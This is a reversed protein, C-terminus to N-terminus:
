IEVIKTWSFDPDEEYNVYGFTNAVVHIGQEVYDSSQHTHGHIWVSINEAFPVFEELIDTAYGTHMFPQVGAYRRTAASQMSPAHHTVIVNKKNTDIQTKLWLKNNYFIRTAEAPTFKGYRGAYKQTIKKFDNMQFSLMPDAKSWLTSGIFNVGDIEVTNNDLFHCNAIPDFLRELKYDKGVSYGAMSAEVVKPLKWMKHGYYEHNGLIYIVNDWVHTCQEIWPIANVGLDIDGALVLVDGMKKPIPPRNGHYFELHLDSMYQIKM